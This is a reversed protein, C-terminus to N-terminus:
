RLGGQTSNFKGGGPRMATYSAPMPLSVAGAHTTGRVFPHFTRAENVAEEVIQCGDDENRRAFPMSTLPYCSM